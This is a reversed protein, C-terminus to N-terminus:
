AALHLPAEKPTGKGPARLLGARRYRSRAARMAGRCYDPLGLRHALDIDNAALPAAALFRSTFPDAWHIKVREDPSPPKQAPPDSPAKEIIRRILAFVERRTPPQLEVLLRAVDYALTEVALRGGVSAARGLRRRLSMLLAYDRTATRARYEARTVM